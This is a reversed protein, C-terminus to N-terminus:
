AIRYLTWAGAGTKRARFRGFSNLSGAANYAPVDMAGVLTWGTNTTVSADEADVTSTNIVSFDFADGAASDPLATDMATALPLQQASSAGAAQNVTIIGALVEAATLTASVTKAAPAGQKVMKVSREIIIGDAGSGNKAGGAIIVPGGNANGATGAGGTVNAAGGAGSTAGGPGGTLNAAGGVGTAGPTGGIVSNAGGANGSTSSTGGRTVIAGGQAAALGNIDLSSDSGAIAPATLTGTFTPDNVSALEADVAPLTYTKGETGLFDFFRLLTEHHFFRFRSTSAM